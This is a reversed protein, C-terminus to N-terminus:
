SSAASRPSRTSCTSSPRSASRTRSSCRARARPSRTRPRRVALAHPTGSARRRLGARPRRRAARRPRERLRGRARDVEDGKALGLARLLGAFADRPSRLALVREAGLYARRQRELEDTAPGPEPRAILAALDEGRPAATEFRVAFDKEAKPQSHRDLFDELCACLEELMCLYADGADDEDGRPPLARRVLEQGRQRLVVGPCTPSMFSDVLEVMGLRCNGGISLPVEPRAALAIALDPRIRDELWRM